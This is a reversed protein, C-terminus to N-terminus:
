TQLVTNKVMTIMNRLVDGHLRPLSRLVDKYSVMML